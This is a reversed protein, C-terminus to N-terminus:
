QGHRRIAAAKVGEGGGVGEEEAPVTTTRWPAPASTTTTTCPSDGSTRGPTAEYRLRRHWCVSTIARPPPPARLAPSQKAGFYSRATRYLSFIFPSLSTSVSTRPNPLFPSPSVAHTRAAAPRADHCIGLVPTSHCVYFSM